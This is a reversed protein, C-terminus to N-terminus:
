AFGPHTLTTNQRNRAECRRFHSGLAPGSLLPAHEREDPSSRPGPPLRQAPRSFGCLKSHAKIARSPPTHRLGRPWGAPHAHPSRPLAPWYGWAPGLSQAVDRGMLPTERPGPRACCVGSTNTHKDTPTPCRTPHPDRGPSQSGPYSVPGGMREQTFALVSASHVKRGPSPGREPTAPVPASLATQASLGDAPHVPHPTSALWARSYRGGECLCAVFM